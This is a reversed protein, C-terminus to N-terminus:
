PFISVPHRVTLCVSFLADMCWLSTATRRDSIEPGVEANRAGANDDSSYVADGDHMAEPGGEMYFQMGRWVAIIFEVICENERIIGEPSSVERSLISRVSTRM